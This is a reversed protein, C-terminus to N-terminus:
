EEDRTLLSTGPAHKGIGIATRLRKNRDEGSDTVTKAAEIPSKLAEVPTPLVSGRRGGFGPLFALASWIM